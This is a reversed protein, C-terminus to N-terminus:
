LNDTKEKEAERKALDTIGRIFATKERTYGVRDHENESALRRKLLEYQLAVERHTRLYDRFYLRDWHEFDREVFHLHHTRLGADNRKIFWAYFPPGDEGQTARWFYDYGQKELVPVIEQKTRELSTVGILMDIVPKAALGPVATSGFHEIRYILNGPFRSSLFQRESEYLAPWSPEYAVISVRDRLVRAIKESLTEPIM